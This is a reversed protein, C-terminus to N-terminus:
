KKQCCEPDTQPNQRNSAVPAAKPTMRPGQSGVRIPSFSIVVEMVIISCELCHLIIPFTRDWTLTSHWPWKQQPVLGVSLGAQRAARRVQFYCYTTRGGDHHIEVASSECDSNSLKEHQGTSLRNDCVQCWPSLGLFTM